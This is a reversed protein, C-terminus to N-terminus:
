FGRGMAMARRRAGQTGGLDEDFNNFSDANGQSAFDAMEPSGFEFDPSEGAYRDVTNGFQDRSTGANVYNEQPTAMAGKVGSVAPMLMPSKVANMPNLLDTLGHGLSSLRGRGMKRNADYTSNLGALGGVTAGIGAGVPGFISGVAAGGLLAGTGGSRQADIEAKKAAARQQEYIGGLAKGSRAVTDAIRARADDRMKSYYDDQEQGYYDYSM